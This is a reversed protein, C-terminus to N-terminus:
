PRSQFVPNLVLQCLLDKAITFPRPPYDLKLREGIPPQYNPARAAIRIAPNCGCISVPDKLVVQIARPVRPQNWVRRIRM